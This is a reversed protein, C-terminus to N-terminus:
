RRVDLRNLSKRMFKPVTYPFAEVLAVAGLVAGHLQVLKAQYESNVQGPQGRRKPLSLSQIERSFREKLVVVMPRQSM